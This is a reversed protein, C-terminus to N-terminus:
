LKMIKIIKCYLPKTIAQRKAQRLSAQPDIFLEFGVNFEKIYYLLRSHM